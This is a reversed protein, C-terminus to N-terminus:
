APRRARRARPTRSSGSTTRPLLADRARKHTSAGALSALIPTSQVREPDLDTWRVGSPRRHVRDCAVLEDPTAFLDVPVDHALMPIQGRALVQSPHVTSAIPTRPGACGLTRLIGYELDTVGGGKGLRAGDRAVGVSGVVILQVRPIESTDLVRAFQEISTIASAPWMDQEEVYRPDLLLFPKDSETWPRSVLVQKAARLAALRVPRQALSPGCHIVRARRFAPTEALRAAAAEAGTFNPIRGRAGPFRAVGLERLTDWRARRLGRKRISLESATATEIAAM